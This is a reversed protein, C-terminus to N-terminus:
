FITLDEWGFTQYDRYENLWSAAYSDKGVIKITLAAVQNNEDLVKIHTLYELQPHDRVVIDQNGDRNLYSASSVGFASPGTGILTSATTKFSCTNLYFPRQDNEDEFKFAEFMTRVYGEIAIHGKKAGFFGNLM